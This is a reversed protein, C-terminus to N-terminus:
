VAVQHVEDSPVATVVPGNVGENNSMAKAAAAAAAAVTVSSVTSSLADEELMVQDVKTQPLHATSPDPTHLEESIASESGHKMLAGSGPRSMTSHGSGLFFSDESSPTQSDTRLIQAPRSREWGDEKSSEKDEETSSLAAAKDDVEATDTQKPDVIAKSDGNTSSGLKYASRTGFGNKAMEENVPAPSAKSLDLGQIRPALESEVTAVKRTREDPSDVAKTIRTESSDTSSEAKSVDDAKSLKQLKDMDVVPMTSADPFNAKANNAEKDSKSSFSSLRRLLARIPRKKQTPREVSDLAMSSRRSANASSPKSQRSADHTPPLDVARFAVPSVDADSDASVAASQPSLSQAPTEASPTAYVSMDPSTASSAHHSSAQVSSATDVQVKSRNSRFLGSLRNMKSSKAPVALGPHTSVESPAMSTRRSPVIVSAEDPRLGGDDTSVIPLEKSDVNSSTADTEAQGNVGTSGDEASQKQTAAVQKLNTFSPSPSPARSSARSGFPTLRKSGGEKPPKTLGQLEAQPDNMTMTLVPRRKSNNPSTQSASWTSAGSLSRSVAVQNPTHYVHTKNAYAMTADFPSNEQTLPIGFPDTNDLTLSASRSTAPPLSPYPSGGLGLFMEKPVMGNTPDAPLGPTPKVAGIGTMSLGEVARARANSRSAHLPTMPKLGNPATSVPTISDDQLPADELISPFSRRRPDNFAGHGAKTRHPSSSGSRSARAFPPQPVQEAIAEAALERALLDLDRTDAYRRRRGPTATGSSTGSGITPSSPAPTPTESGDRSDNSNESKNRRARSSMARLFSKRRKIQTEGGADSKSRARQSPTRSLEHQVQDSQAGNDEVASNDQNTTTIPSLSSGIRKPSAPASKGKKRTEVRAQQRAAELVLQAARALMNVEAGQEAQSAERSKAPPTVCPTAGDGSMTGTVVDQHSVAKISTDMTAPPPSPQQTTSSSTSALIEPHIGSNGLASITQSVTPLQSASKTPSISPPSTSSTSSRPQFIPQGLGRNQAHAQAAATSGSALAAHVQISSALEREAATSDSVEMFPEPTQQSDWKIGSKFKGTPKSLEALNAGTTADTSKRSTRSSIRRGISPRPERSEANTSAQAEASSTNARTSSSSTLRALVGGGSFSSSSRRFPNATIFRPQSSSSAQQHLANAASEPSPPQADQAATDAHTAM